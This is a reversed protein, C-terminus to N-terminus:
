LAGVYADNIDKFAADVRVVVPEHGALALADMARNLAAIAAPEHDNDALIYVGGIQPPLKVNGLNSIGVAALCRLDQKVQAAILVNEIGEGIAIWEGAPADALAKNSVGRTLRISGGAYDGLVRKAPVPRGDREQGAFAKKWQGREQALYSRHAAMIGIGECSICAVMAPMEVDEPWAKCNPLWRLASPPGDKFRLVNVGRGRLYLSAPDTGDLPKANLWLAQAQRRRGAADKKAKEDAEIARAVLAAARAPDPKSGTWGLWDLAWKVAKRDDGGCAFVAVLHLLDGGEDAPWNKWIGRTMHIAFSSLNGGDARRHDRVWYNAGSLRGSLGLARALEVPSASLAAKIEEISHDFQRAPTMM